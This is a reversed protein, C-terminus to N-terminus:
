VIGSLVAAIRVALDLVPKGIEGVNKAAEKLGELSFEWRRQQPNPDTAETTLMELDQAVRRAKEEPMKETMKGVAVSFDKLLTKLENSIPADEATNFSNEIHKATIVDGYIISNNGLNVEVKDGMNLDRTVNITYKANANPDEWMKALEGSYGMHIAAMMMQLQGEEGPFFTWKVPPAILEIYNDVVQAGQISPFPIQWMKDTKELERLDYLSTHGFVFLEVFNRWGGKKKIPSFKRTLEGLSVVHINKDTLCVYGSGFTGVLGTTAGSKSQSRLANAGWSLYCEWYDLLKEDSRRIKPFLKEMFHNYSGDAWLQYKPAIEPRNKETVQYAHMRDEIAHKYDGILEFSYSRGLLTEANTMEVNKVLSIDDGAPSELSKTCFDIASQADENQFHILGLMQYARKNCGGYKIAINANDIAQKMDGLFMYPGALELYAAAYSSDLRLAQTAADISKQFTEKVQNANGTEQTQLAKVSYYRALWIYYQINNPDLQLGKQIEQYTEDFKKDEFLQKITILSVESNAISM